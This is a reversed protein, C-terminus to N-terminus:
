PEDAGAQQQQNVTTPAFPKETKESFETWMKEFEHSNVPTVPEVAVVSSMVDALTVERFEELLEAEGSSCLGGSSVSATPTSPQSGGSSSGGSAAEGSNQDIVCFTLIYLESLHDVSNEVRNLFYQEYFKCNKVPRTDVAVQTNDVVLCKNRHSAPSAAAGSLDIFLDSNISCEIRRLDFGIGDGTAKVYSEKLCWLRYFATLREVSNSRAQIYARESEGFKSTIVRAYNALEAEYLGYLDIATDSSTNNAAAARAREVDIKMMDIGLRFGHAGSVAAAAASEAAPGAAVGAVLGTYDGAHTINFDLVVNTKFLQRMNALRATETQNLYPRGSKIDRQVCLHIWKMNLMLKLAHRTLIQGMLTQKQDRKFAYRAIREREERPLSSMLTLWEAKSPSWKNTNFCYKLIKKM